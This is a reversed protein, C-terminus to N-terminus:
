SPPLTEFTEAIQPEWDLKAKGFIEAAPKFSRGEKLLGTRVVITDEGMVHQHHYPHSTCNPCYFCDVAKGSEGYYTYKKLSTGGSTFHLAKRPIIQNLTYPAGSLAKCTDCHCLIHKAQDPELQVQWQTEGCLCQGHYAQAM